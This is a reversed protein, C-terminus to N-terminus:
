FLHFAIFLSLKNSSKHLFLSIIESGIVILRQLNMLDMEYISVNNLSNVTISPAASGFGLHLKGALSKLISEGAATGNFFQDVGGAVGMEFESSSRGVSVYTYAGASNSRFSSYANPQLVTLKGDPNNTGIGVNIGNDYLNGTVLQKTGSWRPVYNSVGVGSLFTDNVYGSLSNIRNNLLTGTAAILGSLSSLDVISSDAQWMVGSTTSALVQGPTGLSSSYDFIFGSIQIGTTLVEDIAFQAM